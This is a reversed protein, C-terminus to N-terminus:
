ALLADPHCSNMVDVLKVGFLCLDLASPSLQVREAGPVFTVDRKRARKKSDLLVRRPRKSQM